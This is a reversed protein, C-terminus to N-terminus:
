GLANIENEHVDILRTPLWGPDVNERCSRHTTLCKRLCSRMTQPLPSPEGEAFALEDELISSLTPLSPLYSRITQSPPDFWSFELQDRSFAPKDELRSSLTGFRINPIYGLIASNWTPERAKVPMSCDLFHSSEMYLSGPLESPHVIYVDLQITAEQGLEHLAREYKRLLNNLQLCSWCTASSVLLGDLSRGRGVALFGHSWDYAPKTSCFTCLNAKRQPNRKMKITLGVGTDAQLQLSNIPGFHVVTTHINPSYTLVRFAHYLVCIEVSGLVTYSFSAPSPVQESNESRRLLASPILMQGQQDDARVRNIRAYFELWM